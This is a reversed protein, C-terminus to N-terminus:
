GEEEEHFPSQGRLLKRPRKKEGSGRQMGRALRAAGSVLARQGRGRRAPAPAFSIEPDPIMRRVTVFIVCPFGAGPGPPSALTGAPPM